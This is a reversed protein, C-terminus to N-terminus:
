SRRASTRVTPDCGRWGSSISRARQIAPLSPGAMPRWGVMVFAADGHFVAITRGSELNWVRVTGDDSGSLTRTRDRGGSVGRHARPPRPLMRRIPPGLGPRDPRILGLLRVLGDGTVAVAYVAGTHGQLVRSCEGSQLDWFGYPRTTSSGSIREGTARDRGGCSGWGSHGKSSARASTRVRHELGPRDPRHARSRRGDRTVAVATVWCSHGELVRSCEGSDSTGSGSPETPSGSLAVTGTVAVASVGGRLAGPPRPLVTRIRPGLGPVTRTPPARSARGDGTVAAALLRQRLAGPPRALM